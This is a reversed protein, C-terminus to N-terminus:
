YRTNGQRLVKHIAEIAKFLYKSHKKDDIWSESHPWNHAVWIGHLKMLDELMTTYHVKKLHLENIHVLAGIYVHLKNYVVFRTKRRCFRERYMQKSIDGRQLALVKNVYTIHQGDVSQWLICISLFNTRSIFNGEDQHNDLGKEFDDHKLFLVKL